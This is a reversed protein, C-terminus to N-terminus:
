GWGVPFSDAFFDLTREALVVEPSQNCGAAGLAAKRKGPGLEEFGPLSQVRKKKFMM